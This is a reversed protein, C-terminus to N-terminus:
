NYEKHEAESRERDSYKKNFAQVDKNLQEQKKRIRIESITGGSIIDLGEIAVRSVPKLIQRLSKRETTPKRLGKIGLPSIKIKQRIPLASPKSIASPKSPITQIITGSKLASSLSMSSKAGTSDTFTRTTPNYTGPTFSPTSPASPTASPTSKSPSVGGPLRGGLRVDVKRYTKRVSRGIKKFTTKAKGRSRGFIGM